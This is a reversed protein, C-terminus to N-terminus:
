ELSFIRVRRELFHTELLGHRLLGCCEDASFILLVNYQGAQKMHIKSRGLTLIANVTLLIVYLINGMRSWHCAANSAMVADM